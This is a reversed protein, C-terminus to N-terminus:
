AFGDFPKTTAQAVIFLMKAPFSLVKDRLILLASKILPRTESCRKQTDPSGGLIVRFMRLKVALSPKKAGLFRNTVYRFSSVSM